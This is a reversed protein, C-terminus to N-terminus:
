IANRARATSAGSRELVIPLLSNQRCVTIIEDGTMAIQKPGETDQKGGRSGQQERAIRAAALSQAVRSGAADGSADDPTESPLPLNVSSNNKLGGVVPASLLLDREEKGAGSEPAYYHRSVSANRELLSPAAAAADVGGGGGGGRGMFALRSDSPTRLHQSALSAAGGAGGAGGAPAVRGDANAGSSHQAVSASRQLATAGGGAAAAAATTTTEAPILAQRLVHLALADAARRAKAREVAHVGNKGELDRRLLERRELCGGIAAQLNSAWEKQLSSSDVSFMFKRRMAAAASSAGGGGHPNPEVATLTFCNQMFAREVTLSTSKPLGTLQGVGEAGTGQYLRATRGARVFVARRTGLARSTITFTRSASNQFSLVPPDFHLDSGYLRLAFEADPGPISVTIPASPVGYVLKLPLGSGHVVIQRRRSKERGSLAQQIPDLKVSSYIRLLTRDSLVMDADHSRFASVFATKSLSRMPESFIGPPEYDGLSAPLDEEASDDLSIESDPRGGAVAERGHLADNLAMIAFTLDAALRDSFKPKILARNEAIWHSAFTMLLAEFAVSDQPFRLGLLMSRLASEISVGMVHQFGIYAKLVGRREPACLYETLVDADLDPTQALLRAVTAPNNPLGSKKLLDLIAGHADYGFADIFISQLPHPKPKVRHEQPLSVTLHRLEIVNKVDFTWGIHPLVAENLQEVRAIRKQAESPSLLPKAVILIDNFLILFRDKITSSSVIQFVPSCQVVNRPPQALDLSTLGPPLGPSDAQAVTPSTLMQSYRHLMAATKPELQSTSLPALLSANPAARGADLSEEGVPLTQAAAAVVGAVRSQPSRQQQITSAVSTDSATRSHPEVIRPQAPPAPSASASQEKPAVVDPQKDSILTAAHALPRQPQQPQPQQPQQPQEVRRESAAPMTAPVPRLPLPQKGAFVPSQQGAATIVPSSTESSPATSPKKGGGGGGRLSGKRVVNSAKRRLSGFLSVSPSMSRTPTQHDHAASSLASNASTDGVASPSAAANRVSAASAARHLLPSRGASRLSVSPSMSRAPFPSPLPTTGRAASLSEPSNTPSTVLGPFPTLKNNAYASQTELESASPMRHHQSRYVQRMQPHQAAHSHQRASPAAANANGHGSASVSADNSAISMTRLSPELGSAGGGGLRSTSRSEDHGGARSSKSRMSSSRGPLMPRTAPPPPPQTPVISSSASSSLAASADADADADADANADSSVSVGETSTDYQANRDAAGGGIGNDSLNMQRKEEASVQPPEKRRSSLSRQPGLNPKPPLVPRSQLSSDNDWDFQEVFKSGSPTTVRSTESSPTDLSRNGVNPWEIDAGFEQLLTPSIAMDKHVRRHHDPPLLLPLPEPTAGRSSSSSAVPATDLKLENLRRPPPQSALPSPSATAPPNTLVSDFRFHDGEGTSTAGSIRSVSRDYSSEASSSGPAASAPAALFQPRQQPAAPSPVPPSPSPPMGLQLSRREASTMRSRRRLDDDDNGGSSATPTSPWEQQTPADSKLSQEQGTQSVFPALHMSPILSAGMDSYGGPSNWQATPTSLSASPTILGAATPPLQTNMDPTHPQPQPSALHEDDDHTTATADRQTTEDRQQTTTANMLQMQQQQIVQQMHLFAMQQDPTLPSADAPPVSVPVSASASVDMDADDMDDNADDDDDDDVPAPKPQPEWYKKPLTFTGNGNPNPILEHDPPRNAPDYGVRDFWGPPVHTVPIDFSTTSSTDGSAVSSSSNRDAAPSSLVAPDIHQDVVAHNDDRDDVDPTPATPAPSRGGLRRGSLKRMMETRAVERRSPTRKLANEGNTDSQIIETRSEPIPPPMASGDEDGDVTSGRTSRRVPLRSMRKRRQAGGGHGNREDTQEDLAHGFAARREDEARQSMTSITRSRRLTARTSNRVSSPPRGAYNSGISGGYRRSRPRTAEEDDISMQRLPSPGAAAVHGKTDGDDDDGEEEGEESIRGGSDSVPSTAGQRSPDYGLLKNMAYARAAASAASASASRQLGREHLIRSRLQELSPLPSRNAEARSASASRALSTGSPSVSRNDNNGPPALHQPIPSPRRLHQTTDNPSLAASSTSHTTMTATTEADPPVLYNPGSSASPLGSAIPSIARSGSAQVPDASTGGNAAPSARMERNSAARKLMAVANLRASAPAPAAAQSSLNGNSNNSSSISSAFSEDNGNGDDGNRAWTSPGARAFSDFQSSSSMM